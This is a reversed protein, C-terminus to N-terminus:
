QRCYMSEQFAAPFIGDSKVGAEWFDLLEALLVELLSAGAAVASLLESELFLSM